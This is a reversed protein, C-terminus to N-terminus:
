RPTIQSPPIIRSPIQRSSIKRPPTRWVSKFQNFDTEEKIQKPLFNWIYPGLRRLSKDDYKTTNNQNIKM